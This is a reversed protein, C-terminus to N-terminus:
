RLLYYILCNVPFLFLPVSPHPLPVVIPHRPRPPVLVCCIPGWCRGTKECSVLSRLPWNYRSFRALVWYFWAFGLLKFRYDLRCWLLHFPTLDVLVRPLQTEELVMLDMSFLDPKLKLYGAASVRRANSVDTALASWTRFPWLFSQLM